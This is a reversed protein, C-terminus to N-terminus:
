TKIWFKLLDDMEAGVLQFCAPVEDAMGHFTALRTGVSTQNLQKRLYRTYYDYLKGSYAINDDIKDTCALNEYFSNYFYFHDFDKLDLQTFNARIFEVNKFGLIQRATEADAILQKRQEVGYYLAKHRYYSAALCFKGAGSGIDLVRAGNEVALFVAAKRAVCLPTWHKCALLQVTRPYLHHFQADSNFWKDASLTSAILTAPM